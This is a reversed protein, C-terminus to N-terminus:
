WNVDSSPSLWFHITIDDKQYFYLKIIISESEFDYLCNPVNIGAASELGKKQCLLGYFCKRGTKVM